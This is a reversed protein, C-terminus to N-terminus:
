MVVLESKASSKCCMLLIQNKTTLEGSNECPFEVSKEFTSAITSAPFFFGGIFYITLPQNKLQGTLLM